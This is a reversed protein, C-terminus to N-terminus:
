EALILRNRGAGKANYLAEDARRILTDASDTDKMVAVGLSMTINIRLGQASIPTGAIRQRIREGIALTTTTDANALIIIFEEGGYRGVRDPTRMSALIRAAVEKLVMNGVPHGHTDNVRKFYDLDAMIVCLPEGSNRAQQMASTLAEISNGQNLLGTLADTSAKHRLQDEQVYMRSVEAELNTVQAAHYTDIALSMDLTTIKLLFKILNAYDAAGTPPLLDIILQSLSRYACLYVSLPLGAWAHVLGIRLREEFYEASTFDRGLSLLYSGQAQKLRDILDASTLIRRSEPQFLLVEYFREIIVDVNPKIVEDQLRRALPYDAKSLYLFALRQQIRTENYGFKECYHPM